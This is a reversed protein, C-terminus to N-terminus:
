REDPPNRRHRRTSVVLYLAFLALFALTVTATVRLLNLTYTKSGADYSFCYLLVTRISPGTREQAAEALAMKVDFPLFSIGYLYRVIKRKPSLVTLVAPHNFDEGARQYKFGVGETIKRITGADATLFRWAPAPFPTRREFAKLFNDRKQRALEPTERDDFSISLLRYDEGPVEDLRDFVDVMGNMLPGCISPCGYYVLALATPRDVLDGLTVPNGEEDLFTLDAPLVEGLHEEVGVPGTPAEAAPSAVPPIISLFALLLPATLRVM